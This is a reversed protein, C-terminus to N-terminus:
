NRKSQTDFPHCIGCGIPPEKVSGNSKQCFAQIEVYRKFVGFRKKIVPTLIMNECANARRISPVPCTSCLDPKWDQPPPQKGILRCEEVQKGRYYDGYFYPCDVGAPTRM